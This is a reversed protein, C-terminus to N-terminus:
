CQRPLAANAKSLPNTSKVFTFLLLCISFIERLEVRSSVVRLSDSEAEAKTPWPVQLLSLRAYPELTAIPKSFTDYVPSGSTALRSTLNDHATVRRIRPVALVALFDAFGIKWDLFFLAATLTM